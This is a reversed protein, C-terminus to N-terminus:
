VEKELEELSTTNPRKRGIGGLKSGENLYHNFFSLADHPGSESMYRKDLFSKKLTLM